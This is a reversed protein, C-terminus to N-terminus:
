AGEHKSHPSNSTSNPSPSCKERSSTPPSSASAAASGSTFVHPQGTLATSFQLPDGPLWINGDFDVFPRKCKLPGRGALDSLAPM